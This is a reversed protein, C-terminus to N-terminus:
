KTRYLRTFEEWQIDERVNVMTRYFTRRSNPYTKDRRLGVPKWWMPTDDIMYRCEVIDNESVWSEVKEPTLESEFILTGKEQVYLGCKGNPRHKVQFDVTNKDRPKWKFMTEHTGLKIPDKVPTFVLGDIPHPSSPMEKFEKLPTFTKLSVVITDKAMKIIGKVFQDIFELRELLNKSKLDEGSVWVGDYLILNNGVLEGDLLTGGSHAMKPLSLSIWTMVLARNILLTVKKSQFMFALLAVRVGDTKECVMYDNNKLIPFHKREISIPQPGPFISAQITLGWAGHFIRLAETYLLSGTIVTRPSDSTLYEKM